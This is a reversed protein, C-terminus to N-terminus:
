WSLGLHPLGELNPDSFEVHRPSKLLAVPESILQEVGAQQLSNLADWNFARSRWVNNYSIEDFIRMSRDMRKPQAQEAAAMPRSHWVELSTQISTRM